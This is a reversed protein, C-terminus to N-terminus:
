TKSIRPFRLPMVLLTKTLVSFTFNFMVRSKDTKFCNYLIQTNALHSLLHFVSSDPARPGQASLVSNVGAFWKRIAGCMCVRAHM